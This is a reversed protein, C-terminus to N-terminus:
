KKRSWVSFDTQQIKEVGLQRLMNVLQGRHLINSNLIFGCSESRGKPKTWQGPIPRLITDILKVATNIVRLKFQNSVSVSRPLIDFKL